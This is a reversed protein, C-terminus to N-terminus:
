RLVLMTTNAAVDGGPFVALFPANVFPPAGVLYGVFTGGSTVWFSVAGPAADLMSQISGGSWLVLHIGPGAPQPTFTGSSEAAAEILVTLQVTDTAGVSDAVQVYFAATAAALPTGAIVGSAADLALGGPMVGLSLSWTYPPTGGAVALATSYPEGVRGDQLTTSLITLDHLVGTGRLDFAFPQGNITGNATRDASGIATPQFRYTLQCSEAPALTKGVCNQAGGFVGAAGGIFSTSSIKQSSSSVNKIQVQQSPSTEDVIVEGFDLAFPTFLFAANAAAAKAIGTGRLDVAFPQGNITGSATRDASGVATPQFRYTLQCSEAPALTKGVCNQAGGFVGAAGGVFSTSSIKQPSTSVNTIQVQQSPATTGVAVQGFDLGVPTILFSQTHAAGARGGLPLSIGVLTALLVLAALLGARALRPGPRAFPVRM